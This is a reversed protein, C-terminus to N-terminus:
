DYGLRDLFDTMSLVEEPECDMDRGMVRVTADPGVLALLEDLWGTRALMPLSEGRLDLSSPGSGPEGAPERCLPCDHPGPGVGLVVFQGEHNTALHVLAGGPPIEPLGSVDLPPPSSTRRRRERRIRM